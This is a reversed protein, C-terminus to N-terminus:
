VFNSQASALPISRPFMVTDSKRVTFRARDAGIVVRGQRDHICLNSVPIRIVATWGTETSRTAASWSADWSRNVALIVNSENDSYSDIAIAILEDTASRDCEHTHVAVADADVQHLHGGVQLLRDDSGVQFVTAEKSSEGVESKHAAIPLVRLKQWSQEELRGELEIPARSRELKLPLTETSRQGSAPSASVALLLISLLAWQDSRPMITIASRHM